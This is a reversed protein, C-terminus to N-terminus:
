INWLPIGPLGDCSDENLAAAMSMRQSPALM